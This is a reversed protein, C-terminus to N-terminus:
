TLSINFINHFHPSIAGRKWLIKIGTQLNGHQFLFLIKVELYATIRSLRLRSLSLRSYKGMQRLKDSQKWHGSHRISMFSPFFPIPPRAFFKWSALMTEVYWSSHFLVCVCWDCVRNGRQAIWRTAHSSWHLFQLVGMQKFHIVSPWCKVCVNVRSSSLSSSLSGSISTYQSLCERCYLIYQVVQWLRTQKFQITALSWLLCAKLAMSLAYSCRFTPELVKLSGYEEFISM